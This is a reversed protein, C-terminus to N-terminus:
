PWKKLRELTISPMEQTKTESIQIKVKIKLNKYSFM